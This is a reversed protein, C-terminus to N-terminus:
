MFVPFLREVYYALRAFLRLGRKRAPRGNCSPCNGAYLGHYMYNCNM